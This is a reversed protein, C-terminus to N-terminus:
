SAANLPPRLLRLAGRPEVDAIRRVLAYELPTALMQIEPTQCPVDGDLITGMTTLSSPSYTWDVGNEM